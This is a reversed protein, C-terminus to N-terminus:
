FQWGVALNAGMSMLTEASNPSIDKKQLPLASVRFQPKAEFYLRKYVDVRVLFGLDAFLNFPNTEAKLSHTQTQGGNLGGNNNSEIKASAILLAPSLGAFCGLHVKGVKKKFVFRVPIEVYGYRRQETYSAYGLTNGTSDLVVVRNWQRLGFSSWQVGLELGYSKRFFKRAFIGTSFQVAPGPNSNPAAQVQSNEGSLAHFTTGLTLNAGLEWGTKQAKLMLASFAFVLAIIYKKM